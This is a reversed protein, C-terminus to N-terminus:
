YMDFQSQFIKIIKEYDINLLYMCYNPFQKINDFINFMLYNFYNFVNFLIIDIDLLMNNLYMISLFMMFLIFHTFYIYYILFAFNTKLKIRMKQLEAFINSTNSNQITIIENIKSTHLIHNTEILQNLKTHNLNIENEQMHLKDFISKITNDMELDYEDNNENIHIINKQNELKVSNIKEFIENHTNENELYSEDNKERMHKILNLMYYNQNNSHKTIENLKEDFINIKESFSIYNDGKEENTLADKQIMVCENIKSEYIKKELTDITNFLQEMKTDYEINKQLFERNCTKLDNLLKINLSYDNNKTQQLLEKCNLEVINIKKEHEKLNNFLSKIKIGNEVYYDDNKTIITNLKNQYKSDIEDILTKAIINPQNKIENIKICSLEDNYIKHQYYLNDFINNVYKIHLYIEDILLQESNSNGNCINIKYPMFTFTEIVIHETYNHKFYESLKEKIEKNEIFYINKLEIFNNEIIFIKKLMENVYKVFLTFENILDIRTYEEYEMIIKNYPIFEHIEKNKIDYTALTDEINTYYKNNEKFLNNMFNIFNLLERHISLITYIPPPKSGYISKYPSYDM